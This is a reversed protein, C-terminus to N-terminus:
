WLYEEERLNQLKFPIFSMDLIHLIQNWTEYKEMYVYLLGETAQVSIAPKGCSNWVREQTGQFFAM